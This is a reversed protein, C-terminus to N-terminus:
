KQILQFLSSLKPSIVIEIRRNRMKAEESMSNDLPYFEGKGTASIRNGSVGQIYLERAVTAARLSSLDWNDKVGATLGTPAAPKKAGKKATKAPKAAPTKPKFPSNDTHGEVSVELDPNQILVQAVKMIADKGAPQLSYSGTSFLTQNPLVVYVKGDKETVQLNSNNLTLLAATMKAKFDALMKDKAALQAEMEKIKSDKAGVVHSLQHAEDKKKELEAQQQALQTKLDNLEKEKKNLDAEKRQIEKETFSRENSSNSLLSNYSKDLREYKDFVDNLLAKNKRYMAGSQASDLKLKANEEQLSKNEKELRTNEVKTSEAKKLAEDRDNRLSSVETNLRNYRLQSVCSTMALGLSSVLLCILIRTAPNTAKM